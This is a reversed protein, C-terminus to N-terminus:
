RALLAIVTSTTSLKNPDIAKYSKCSVIASRPYPLSIVERVAAPGQLQAFLELNSEVCVRAEEFLSSLRRCLPLEILLTM